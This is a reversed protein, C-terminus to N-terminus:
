HVIIKACQDSKPSLVHLFYIGPHNPLRVYSDFIEENLVSVGDLNTLQVRLKSNDSVKQNFSIRILEGAKVPNPSVQFFDKKESYVSLAAGEGELRYIGGPVTKFTTTEGNYKVKCDNGSHSLIELFTITGNDWVATIEFNGRAKIGNLSGTNWKDPLAPLIEIYEGQSQVLMETMGATAGFNGDIQFPPHTDFLNTLTSQKLLEQLLKHSRNGDRLRAWFNIKWAKSWGTGGDGRTNLTKKMAEVYKNDEESRGAVIQSGPHLWLLHNVHRHEWDGTVDRTTEEKWEMFQGNLGIKPGSLKSKAAKIEEIESNSKGLIESAKLVMEFLECVIAQDCSVGLEFPGHEPSYSPNVVLTGDRTDTWLNDVWFLAADLMTKYNRELFAKDSNFLYYEWIDQCLWGNATPSLFAGSVAPATNGWINNEHYTVWGRVDGGDPKCHYHLATKTGRPVLSNIYEIVPLHCEKLNTQEALWYNMQLNINTHYDADWPPTLGDAWVGQLNAPLTNERSSSILLYRGFQYYLMELYLNEEPTNSKDYGFILDDTAKAPVQSVNGLSLSLRDYLSKYDAQHTQLLESYTKQSAREIRQKVKDLPNENTFYNFSEDMCQSYNTSAAVLILIEDAATVIIRGDETTISGGTPIVKIQQAFKLGGNERHDAPRGTMTIVNGEATITKATQPSTIWIARSLKQPQSAKLRIVMVNDPYSAFYERQYSVGGANYNLNVLANDVDLTRVYDTTIPLLAEKANELIIESLQPPNNSRTAVIELKFFKYDETKKLDFSLTQRRDSFLVGKREDILTYNEGNMSGYLNWDKPDRGEVDNASVLSYRKTSFAGKYEWAIYCPYKKLGSDSFWKSTINGDFLNTVKERDGPNDCDTTVRVFDPVIAETYAININGLSQYSGFDEKTGKLSNVLNKATQSENFDNTIVKGTNTNIYADKTSSFLSVESQLLKRATNLNQKHNAANGIHGGNYDPNKGPGGSWLTNENMQIVDTAVGGYIMGGLYGNGIPTPLMKDMEDSDWVTAPRHYIAKLENKKGNGFISITTFCFLILYVTFNKCIRKM